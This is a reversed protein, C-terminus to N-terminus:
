CTGDINFINVIDIGPFLNMQSKRAATKRMAISSLGTKTKPSGRALMSVKGLSRMSEPVSSQRQNSNKENRKDQAAASRAASRHEETIDKFATTLVEQWKTNAEDTVGGLYIVEENEAHISAFSFVTTKKGTVKESEKANEAKFVLEALAYGCELEYKPAGRGQTEIKKCILVLDTYLVVYREKGKGSFYRLMPGDKLYSKDALDLDADSEITKQINLIREREEAQRTAENVSTVVAAIKDAALKLAADDKTKGAKENYRQLERILLPYKCIRQVPKILFSEFSLGRGESSKMWTELVKSMDDRLKYSNVLKQAAPYNSAYISYIKLSDATEAIIDGIEEIFVNQAKRAIFKDFLQQNAALLDATNSFLAEIEAEPVLKSEHLQVKHFSLMTGLDKLYDSETEILEYVAALRLLEPKELNAEEVEKPLKALLKPQASPTITSASLPAEAKDIDKEDDFVTEFSHKIDEVRRFMVENNQIMAEVKSMGNNLKLIEMRGNEDFPEVPKATLAATVQRLESLSAMFDKYFSKAIMITESVKEDLHKSVVQPNNFIQDVNVDLEIALDQCMQDYESKSLRKPERPTSTSMEFSTRPVKEDFSAAFGVSKASKSRDEETFSPARPPTDTDAM